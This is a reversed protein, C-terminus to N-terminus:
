QRDGQCPSAHRQTRRWPCQGCRHRRARARPVVASVNSDTLTDAAHEPPALLLLALLCCSAFLLGALTSACAGAVHTGHGNDDDVSSGVASAGDGIRGRYDVHSTRVGTDLIYVHVGRGDYAGSSYTGDLPLSAQDLRDLSCCCARLFPWRWLRPQSVARLLVVCCASVIFCPTM